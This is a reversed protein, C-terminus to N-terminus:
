LRKLFDTCSKEYCLVQALELDRSLSEVSGDVVHVDFTSLKDVNDIAIHLTQRGIQFEERIVIILDCIRKANVSYM